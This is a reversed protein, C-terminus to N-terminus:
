NNFTITSLGSGTKLAAIGALIPAGMMGKSGGITLVNGFNYKHSNKIRKPLKNKLYAKQLLVQPEEYLTQLIGVDILHIEGSYDLADNLLNGQKYNQIVITHEAQVSDKMVVGNDANVGSPM